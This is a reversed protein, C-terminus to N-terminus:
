RFHDRMFSLKEKTCGSCFMRHCCSDPCHPSWGDSQPSQLRVSQLWHSPRVATKAWHAVGDMPAKDSLGWYHPLTHALPARIDPHDQSSSSLVALLHGASIGLHVGRKAPIDPFVDICPDTASTATHENNSVATSNVDSHVITNTLGSVPNSRVFNVAHFQEALRAEACAAQISQRLAAADQLKHIGLMHRRLVSYDNFTAPCLRCTYPRASTHTREHRVLASHQTFAKSCIGCKYRREVSHVALHVWLGQRQKFTKGCQNCEYTRADTHVQFFVLLNLWYPNCCCFYYIIFTKLFHDFVNNSSSVIYEGYEDKHYAAVDQGNNLTHRTLFYDTSSSNLNYYLWLM